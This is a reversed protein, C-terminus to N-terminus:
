ADHNCCHAKEPLIHFATGLSVPYHRPYRYRNLDNMEECYIKHGRMYQYTFKTADFVFEDFNDNDREDDFAPPLGPENNIVYGALKVSKKSFYDEYLKEHFLIYHILTLFSGDYSGDVQYVRFDNAKYHVQFYGKKFLHLNDDYLVTLVEEITKKTMKSKFDLKISRM